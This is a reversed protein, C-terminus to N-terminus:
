YHRYAMRTNAILKFQKAEQMFRDGHLKMLGKLHEIQQKTVGITVDGATYDIDNRMLQTMRTRYLAELTGDVFTNSHAEMCDPNACLVYPPISNFARACSRMAALIEAESFALDAYLANDGPTQDRIVERILDPTIYPDM